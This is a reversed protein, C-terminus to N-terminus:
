KFWIKRIGWTYPTIFIQNIKEGNYSIEWEENANKSVKLEINGFDNSAFMRFRQLYILTVHGGLVKDLDSSKLKIVSIGKQKYLTAGHLIAEVNASQIRKSSIVKIKVLDNFEDTELNMSIEENNDTQLISLLRSEKAFCNVVFSSLLLFIFCRKLM